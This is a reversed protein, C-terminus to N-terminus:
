GHRPLGVWPMLRGPGTAWIACWHPRSLALVAGLVLQQSQM